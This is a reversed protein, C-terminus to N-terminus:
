CQSYIVAFSMLKSWLNFTQCECFPLLLYKFFCVCVCVYVYVVLCFMQKFRSTFTWMYKPINKEINKGNNKQTNNSLICKSFDKYSKAVYKAQWYYIMYMHPKKAKLTTGMFWTCTYSVIIFQDFIQQCLTLTTESTQENRHATTFLVAFMKHVSFIPRPFFRLSIWVSLSAFSISHSLTRSDQSFALSICYM